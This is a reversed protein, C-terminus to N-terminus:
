EIRIFPSYIKTDSFKNSDTTYDDHYQKSTAFLFGFVSFVSYYTQVCSLSWYIFNIKGFFDIFIYRM